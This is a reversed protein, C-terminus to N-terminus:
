NYTQNTTQGTMLLIMSSEMNRKGKSQLEKLWKVSGLSVKPFKRSFLKVLGIIILAQEQM